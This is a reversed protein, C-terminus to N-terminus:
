VFKDIDSNEDNFSKQFDNEKDSDWDDIIPTSLNFNKTSNLNPKEFFIKELSSALSIDPFDKEEEQANYNINPLLLITNDNENEDKNGDVNNDNENVDNLDVNNNNFEDNESKNSISYFTTVSSEFLDSCYIGSEPDYSEIIESESFNGINDTPCLPSLGNEVQEKPNTQNQLLMKALQRNQDFKEDLFIDVIIDVQDVDEESDFEYINKNLDGDDQNANLDNPKENLDNTTKENLDNTTKEITKKNSNSTSQILKTDKLKENLEKIDIDQKEKKEFNSGITIEKKIVIDKKLEKGREKVREKGKGKGKEQKLEQEEETRKEKTNGSGESVDVDVSKKTKKKFSSFKIDSFSDTLSDSFSDTFSDKFSDTFSETLSDSISDSFSDFDSNSDQDYNKKLYKMKKQNKYFQLKKRPKQQDENKKYHDKKLKLKKKKSKTKNRKKNRYYFEDKKNDNDFDIRKFRRENYKMNEIRSRKKQERKKRLESYDQFSKSHKPYLKYGSFAKGQVKGNGKGKYKSDTLIKNFTQASIKKLKKKSDVKEFHVRRKKFQRLKHKIKQIKPLMNRPYDKCKLDITNPNASQGVNKKILEVVDRCKTQSETRKEYKEGLKKSLYLVKKALKRRYNKAFILNKLYKQLDPILLSQESNWYLLNENMDEVVLNLLKYISLVTCVRQKSFETKEALDERSYPKTQLLKTLRFGLVGITRNARTNEISKKSPTKNSKPSSKKNKNKQTIEPYKSKSGGHLYKEFDSEFGSDTDSFSFDSDFTDKRLIDSWVESLYFKKCSVTKSKKASKKTTPHIFAGNQIFMQQILQLYRNLQPSESLSEPLCRSVFKKAQHDARFLEKPLVHSDLYEGFDWLLPYFELSM